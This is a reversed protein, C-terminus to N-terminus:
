SHCKDSKINWLKRRLIEIQMQCPMAVLMETFDGGVLHQLLESLEQISPLISSPFLCWIKIWWAWSIPILQILFCWQTDKTKFQVDTKYVMSYQLILTIECCFTLYTYFFAFVMIMQSLSPIKAFNSACISMRTSKATCNPVVPTWILCLQSFVM